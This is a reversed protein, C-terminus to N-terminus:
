INSNTVSEVSLSAAPGIERERVIRDLAAVTQEAHQRQNDLHWRYRARPGAAPKTGTARSV